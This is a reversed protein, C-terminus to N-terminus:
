SHFTDLTEENLPTNNTPLAPDNYTMHFKAKKTM